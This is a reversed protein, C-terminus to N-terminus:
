NVLYHPRSSEYANPNRLKGPTIHYTKRFLRIFSAVDEFGVLRCINNIPQGSSKVLELAKDLRIENLYQYPTKNFTQKFLRQFHYISLCSHDAVERLTAVTNFNDHMYQRAIDLRLYAEKRTSWRVKRISQVGSHLHYQEILLQGLLESCCLEIEEQIPATNPNESVSLLRTLGNAVLDSYEYTKELFEVPAGNIFHPQTLLKDHSGSLEYHMQELLGARFAVCVNKHEITSSLYCSVETGFNSILYNRPKVLHKKGGVRYMIDGTFDVHLCLRAVHPDPTEINRSRITHVGSPLKKLTSIEDKRSCFVGGVNHILNCYPCDTM